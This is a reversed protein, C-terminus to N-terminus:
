DVVEVQVDVGERAGAARVVGRLAQVVRGRRGIVKGMDEQAVHLRLEIGRRRSDDLEIEVADPEDVIAKALYELVGYALAGERDGINDIGEDANGEEAAASGDAALDTVLGDPDEIDDLEVEDLESDEPDELHDPEEARSGGPADTM